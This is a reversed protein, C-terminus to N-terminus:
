DGKYAHVHTEIVDWDIECGNNISMSRFIDKIQEDTLSPEIFRLDEAKWVITYTLKEYDVTM